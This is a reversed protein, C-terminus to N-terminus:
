TDSKKYGKASAKAQKNISKIENEETINNWEIKIEYKQM